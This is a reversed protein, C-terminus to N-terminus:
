LLNLNVLRLSALSSGYKVGLDLGAYKSGSAEPLSSWCLVVACCSGFLKSGSAEPLSSMPLEGCM